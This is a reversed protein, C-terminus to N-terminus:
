KQRGCGNIDIVHDPFAPKGRGLYEANQKLEFKGPFDRARRLLFHAKGSKTQCCHGFIQTYDRIAALRPHWKSSVTLILRRRITRRKVQEQPQPLWWFSPKSGNRNCWPVVFSAKQPPGSPRGYSVRRGAEGHGPPSGFVGTHKSSKNFRASLGGRRPSRDLNRQAGSSEM